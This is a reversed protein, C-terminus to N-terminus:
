EAKLAEMLNARLIEKLKLWLTLALALLVLVIAAVIVVGSVGAHLKYIGNMLALAFVYGGASGALLALGIVLLFNRNLHLAIHSDTAGLVRRLALGRYQKLANLSVIAFLGSVTLLLTIISFWSLTLSLNNSIELARKLVEDQYFGTFPQYPFLQKWTAEMDAYVKQLDEPRTKIICYRLNEEPACRLIAPAMPEFPSDPMFDAVIGAIRYTASDFQLTAGVLDQGGGIERVFTENVLVTTASGTVPNVASFDTGSKVQMGMLSLYDKGVEFWLSEEAQGRFEFEVRRYGWGAHHRTNAMALVDPRQSFANEFTKLAALDRAEVGIIGEKLYGIDADRQERANRAFSLGVVMGMVAVSVQAGMMMRSFISSGGFRFTNRFIATPSYRSLYFAPYSGALLTTFVVVALLFLLMPPNDLYSLKLDLHIWLANVADVIQYALLMGLLLAMLCVVFAEGLLQTRLQRLSGGMVKRVGMERLRRNGIALTTNAFNLSASLLLLLALVSNSWLAAPPSSPNLNNWRIEHGAVATEMLPDLRFREAQWNLNGANQPAIFRQLDAEVQAADTANKLKIFGADTMWRWSDYRVPQDGELQNELHTLFRFQLSSNKPCNKLVGSITLAKRQETDAYFLLTQGVPNETGFFKAAMDENILISSRDHLRAQGAVLEFQFFDLFNEDTFHVEHMFVEEGRKVVVGRSDIRTMAEVAPLEALAQHPLMAPCVGHLLHNSRKFSEIRFVRSADPHWTDYSYAFRYNEFAFICFALAVGLGGVNIMVYRGNRGLRRLAIRIYNQIM